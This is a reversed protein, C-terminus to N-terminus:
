GLKKGKKNLTYGLVGGVSFTVIIFTILTLIIELFINPDPIITNNFSNYFAFNDSANNIASNKILTNNTSNSLYFGNMDNNNATNTILTNNTSNSLYFGNMDNNNASNNTM